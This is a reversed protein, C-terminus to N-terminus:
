ASRTLSKTSEDNAGLFHQAIKKRDLKLNPRLFQNERTFAVDSFIIRRVAISSPKRESIGDVFQEIRIKASEDGANRPVIVAVLTSSGPEAFVVSRDVDPCADIETEPIEPHIKTGGSTIIMERKRGILYLYGDSDVRGIDGTAVRDKSIFTQEVEGESCEFYSSAIRHERVAVIEGDAALEVCVGPLLRGVSGVRNAGPLNLAIGGFETMGYTEFLPLQMLQFLDLTSRKIPAMGTVMFRIQGGLARYVEKFIARAVMQPLWRGPLFRAIGAITRATRQKWAPLNFFRTEITEYFMPPAILITPKLDKLARFLRTPDTVILDFGYWLASYYMLRQQFNSIPLFLLLCDSPRPKAALTFADVSAEIGKRNLSLGKLRGSSGSSFVLGTNEFEDDPPAPSSDLATVEHNEADLFAVAGSGPEAKLARASKSVLLLSLSYKQILEAASMSEFDDTFAVSIARLELLAVDYVIWEYCNPAFIGVRMGARVGWARLRVCAAVVDALVADHSRRIVQGQEFTIIHNKNQQGNQESIRATLRRLDM